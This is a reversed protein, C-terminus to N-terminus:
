QAAELQPALANSVKQFATIIDDVDQDTLVSAITLIAARESMADCVPLAGKNYSYENAFANAPHTWPFGDRANSRRKVLSPVNFYWHM